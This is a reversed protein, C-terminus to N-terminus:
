KPGMHINKPIPPAVHEGTAATHRIRRFNQDHFTICRNELGCKDVWSNFNRVADDVKHADPWYGSQEVGTLERFVWPNNIAARGIM